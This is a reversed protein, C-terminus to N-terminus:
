STGPEPYNRRLSRVLCDNCLEVTGEIRGDLVLLQLGLEARDSNCQGASRRGLERLEQFFLEFEPAVQQLAFANLRRLLPREPFFDAMKACIGRGLRPPGTHLADGILAAHALPQRKLSSCP